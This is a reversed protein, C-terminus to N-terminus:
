QLDFELRGNNNRIHEATNIDAEPANHGFRARLIPQHAAGETFNFKISDRLADHTFGSGSWSFKNNVDGIHDDLDLHSDELNGRQSECKAKLFTHGDMLVIEADQSSNQWDGAM